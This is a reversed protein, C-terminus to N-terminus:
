PKPRGPRILHPAPVDGVQGGGHSTRPQVEIQHEVDPAPLNHVPIDSVALIRGDCRMQHAPSTQALPVAACFAEGVAFAAALRQEQM